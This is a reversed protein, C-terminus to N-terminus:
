AINSGDFACCVSQRGYQGFTLDSGNVLFEFFACFREFSCFAFELFQLTEVQARFLFLVQAAHAM